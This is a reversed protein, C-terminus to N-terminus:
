PQNPNIGHLARATVAENKERLRAMALTKSQNGFSKCFAWNDQMRAYLKDIRAMREDDKMDLQGDTIVATLEDIVAECNDLLRGYARQIYDLEDGHFADSGSLWNYSNHYDRVVKVQLAIIDAVRAYRKIEPNVMRLSNFFVGHLNFEGDTINGITTLGEKAIKYGKQAYEIYVQLAAIQQLLYKKQTSNQQFWEAFTQAQLSSSAAILLLVILIKKM